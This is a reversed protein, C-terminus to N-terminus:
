LINGSMWISDKTSSDYKKHGCLKYVEYYMMIVKAKLM